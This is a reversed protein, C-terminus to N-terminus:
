KNTHVPLTFCVTCGKGKESETWIRGGHVEIIRKVIALGAGTGKNNKEIQYFLEFVKDHQSPDIGIGNDRVFFVTEEEDVRYGIDIKSRPQEGMYNISNTVLNVLVEAIRMRDVHVAPFDEAVSIEVGNSKIQETTQQLAERVIEGFPVDEPPNVFRGIRSLQLTDTLLRDMKATGNEIFKLDSEVKEIENRELDGRLMEIFGQV